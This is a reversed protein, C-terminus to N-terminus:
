PTLGTQRLWSALLTASWVTVADYPAERGVFGFYARRLAEAKVYPEIYQPNQLIVEESSRRGFLLMTRTFNSSVDSVGTRWRVAEPLIGAMARRMIVRNWGAKLKQEPPIALCFEVLRRDFFPHRAEVGYSMGAKDHVELMYPHIGATLKRHHHERPTRPTRIQSSRLELDRERLGIREAFHPNIVGAMLSEDPRRGKRLLRRGRKLFEPALPAIVFRRLLTWYSRDFNKSLGAIERTLTVMRARRALQALYEAGESVVVDGDDGDLLVRVGQDRACEFLSRFIFLNPAFVAEDQHWLVRSLDGLPNLLDARVKHPEYTGETLVSDIYYSEDSSPAEPFVASFTHLRGEGRAELLGRAACVISSSDLGGSLHSGVPFASRTRCRVADTFLERFAEAYDTNSGLRVERTPDLSWYERINVSGPGVTISHAPPLRWIDRYFTITKDELTPLLYNAVMVENLRRPVGEVCLLAKIESGFAFLRGPRHYYYYFPKVGMHDRACFLVGRRGDWVAFAFDGLLREPCREGWKEYAGLILDSDSVAERPRDDTLNLARMLEERNDIRADATIALDGRVSPLEEHL